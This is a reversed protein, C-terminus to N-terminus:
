LYLVCRHAWMDRVTVTVGPALGLEQWTAAVDAAKAGTNVLVVAVAGSALDGAWVEVLAM